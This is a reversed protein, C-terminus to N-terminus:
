IPSQGVLIQEITIAIHTAATAFTETPVDATNVAVPEMLMQVNLAAANTSFTESGVDSSVVNVPSTLMNISLSKASVSIYEAPAHWLDWLWMTTPVPVWADNYLCMFANNSFSVTVPITQPRSLSFMFTYDDVIGAFKIYQRSVGAISSVRDYFPKILKIPYNCTAYLEDKAENTTFTFAIDYPYAPANKSLVAISMYLPQGFTSFHESKIAQEVYTRGSIYWKNSTETTICIGVRYDNLRHVTADVVNEEPIKFPGVWKYGDSYAYQWYWATAGKVYVCILGQDNDISEASRAKYGRCVYMSVVGTDLQFRTSEDAGRQVWLADELDIFFVYPQEYTQLTYGVNESDPVWDGDFEIATAKCPGLRFAPEFVTKSNKVEYPRVSVLGEGATVSSIWFHDPGSKVDKQEVTIDDVMVGADILREALYGGDISFLMGRTHVVITGTTTQATVTVQHYGALRHLYAHPVGISSRGASVSYLLPSFLETSGNDKFRLTLTSEASSVFTFEFHGQLDTNDLLNFSIIGITTEAQAFEVPRENYDYLLRPLSQEVGEIVTQISDDAAEPCLEWLLLSVADQSVVEFTFSAYGGAKLRLEDLFVGSSFFVPFLTYNYFTGDDLEAHVFVYVRPKYNDTFKDPMISVRFYETLRAINTRDLICKASGGAQLKMIGGEITAKSLEYYAAETPLISSSYEM